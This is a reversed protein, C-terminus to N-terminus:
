LGEPRPGGTAWDLLEVTHVVPLDVAQSIQVLCGINGTAVADRTETQVEIHDAQVRKGLFRLDAFGRGIVRKRERDELLKDASIAAAATSDRLFRLEKDPASKEPRPTFGLSPTQGGGREQAAAPPLTAAWIFCALLGSFLPCLFFLTSRLPYRSM